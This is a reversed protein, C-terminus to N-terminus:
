VRKGVTFFGRVYSLNFIEEINSMIMYILVCAQYRRKASHSPLRGARVSQDPSEKNSTKVHFMYLVEDIFNNDIECFM